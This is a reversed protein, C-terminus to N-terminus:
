VMIRGTLSPRIFVANEPVMPGIEILSPVVCEQNFPVVTKVYYLVM